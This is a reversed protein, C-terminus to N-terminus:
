GIKEIDDMIKPFVSDSPTITAAKIISVTETISISNSGEVVGNGATQISYHYSTYKRWVFFTGFALIIIPMFIIWLWYQNLKKSVPIILGNTTSINILDGFHDYLRKKMSDVKDSGTYLEVSIRSNMVDLGASQLCVVENKPQTSMWEETIEELTTMLENYSHNKIVYNHTNLFDSSLTKEYGSVVVYTVTGNSLYSGGYWKPYLNDKSWENNLFDLSTENAAFVSVTNCSLLVLFFVIMFFSKKM